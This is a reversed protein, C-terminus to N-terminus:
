VARETGKWKEKGAMRAWSKPCIPLPAQRGSRLDVFMGHHDISGTRLLKWLLTLAATATAQNVFLDQKALAEALSCSPENDEPAAEDLIAPFLEWVVPLRPCGDKKVRRKEKYTEGLVVQGSHADNGLDLVYTEAYRSAEECFRRIGRRAAKNDVCGIIFDIRSSNAGITEIKATHAAWQTGFFANIRTALAAAKSRGVDHPSFLQRGVNSESVTDPDVITVQLGAGGLGRLACDMRALGSAMQSGNGGAGVLLVQLERTCFRSPLIHEFRIM